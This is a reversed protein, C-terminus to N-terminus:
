LLEGGRRPLVVTPPTLFEIGRRGRASLTVLPLVGPAELTPAEDEVSEAGLSGLTPMEPEGLPVEGRPSM